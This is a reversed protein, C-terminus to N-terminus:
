RKPAAPIPEGQLLAEAGEESWFPETGKGRRGVQKVVSEMLSSTIPLGQRRYVDYPMQAQHNTLYTLTRQVVCRPSTEAEGKEPLGLEAQRQQLAAIVQAVQGQWVWSIWQQYCRWGVAFHRGAQAAAYVSAAAHIFDLIPEFSGFFRRQVEWNNASGAAVFAKREAEQFGAAGAAQAVV